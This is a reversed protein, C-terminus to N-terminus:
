LLGNTICFFIVSAYRTQPEDPGTLWLFMTGAFILTYNVVHQTLAANDHSKNNGQWRTQAVFDAVWHTALLILYAWMMPIM